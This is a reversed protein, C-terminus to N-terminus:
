DARGRRSNVLDGTKADLLQDYIEDCPRCRYTGSRTRSELSTHGEPCRYRWPDSM